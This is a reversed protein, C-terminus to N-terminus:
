KIKNNNDLAVSNDNSDTIGHKIDSGATKAGDWIDGTVKKAGDWIDSSVEKTGDWVDSSVEKTEEWTDSDHSTKNEAIIQPPQEAIKLILFKQGTDSAKANAQFVLTVLLTLVACKFCKFM